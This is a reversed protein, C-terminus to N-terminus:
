SNHTEDSIPPVTDIMSGALCETAPLIVKAIGPRRRSAIWGTPMPMVLSPLVAKIARPGALRMATTSAVLWVTVLYRRTPWRTQCMANVGSSFYRSTVLPTELSTETMSTDACFTILVMWTPSSGHPMVIACGHCRGVCLGRASDHRVDRGPGIGGAQGRQRDGADAM